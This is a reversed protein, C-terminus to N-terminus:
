FAICPEDPNEDGSVGSVEEPSLLVVLQKDVPSSKSSKPTSLVISPVIKLSAEKLASIQLKFKFKFLIKSVACHVLACLAGGSLPRLLM